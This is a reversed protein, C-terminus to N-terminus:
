SPTTQTLNRGSRWGARGKLETGRGGGKDDRM